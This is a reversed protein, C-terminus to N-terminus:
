VEYIKDSLDYALKICHQGFWLWFKIMYWFLNILGIAYIVAEVLSIFM